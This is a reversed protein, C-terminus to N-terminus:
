SLYSVLLIIQPALLSGVRAFLGCLGLATARTQTPFLESGYIFMGGFGSVALGKGVLALFIIMYRKAAYDEEILTLLGISMCFISNLYQYGIMSKRRGLYKSSLAFYAIIYATIEILASLIFNLHRGGPLNPLYLLIGYYSLTVSFFVTIMVISHKLLIKNKFLDLISATEHKEEVFGNQLPVSEHDLKENTEYTEMQLSNYEKFFDTDDNKKAIKVVVNFADRKKNKALYWKPSEPFMWTYILTLLTPVALALQLNRWDRIFYAIIGLLVMGIGTLSSLILSKLCTLLDRNKGWFCEWTIGCFTRKKPPIMEMLLTYGCGQLGQIFFGQILRLVMFMELSNALYLSTGFVGQAYLCFLIMKKRGVMDCIMGCVLSGMTVGVFYITNLLASLYRRDCVLSWETVVSTDNDFFNYNTCDDTCTANSPPSQLLLM